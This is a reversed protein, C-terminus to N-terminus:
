GRGLPTGGDDRLFEQLVAGPAARAPAAIGPPAPGHVATHDLRFM